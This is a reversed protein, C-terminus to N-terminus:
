KLQHYACLVGVVAGAVLSGILGDGRYLGVPLRIGAARIRDLFDGRLAHLSGHLAPSKRMQCRQAPASRGCSPLAAAALAGPNEALAAALARIAGPTVTAYADVFVHLAAPPALAHVYQNWANSKDAFPIDFLQVPIGSRAAFRRVAAASDDTTGDCAAGFNSTLSVADAAVAALTRAASAGAPTVVAASTDAGAVTGGTIAVSGAAQTAISGLGLNVRATAPNALDSLNNGAQAAGTIRSDNGAAVTGAATGINARVTAAGGSTSVVVSGDAPVVSQLATVAQAQATGVPINNVTVAPDLQLPSAAFAHSSLLLLLAVVRRM